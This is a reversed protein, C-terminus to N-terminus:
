DQYGHGKERVQTWNRLVRENETQEMAPALKSCTEQNQASKGHNFYERVLSEMDRPKFSEM